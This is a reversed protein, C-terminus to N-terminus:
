IEAGDSDVTGSAVDVIPLAGGGADNASIHSNIAAPFGMGPM